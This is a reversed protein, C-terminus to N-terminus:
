AGDAEGAVAVRWAADRLRLLAVRQGLRVLFLQLRVRRAPQIHRPQRISPRTKPTRLRIPLIRGLRNHPPLHPPPGPPFPSTPIYVLTLHIIRYRYQCHSGKLPPQETVTIFGDLSGM